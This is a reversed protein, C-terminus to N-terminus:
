GLRRTGAPTDIEAALGPEPAAEIAIRSDAIRGALARRLAAAEPHRLTLRRLRCGRDALRDTPHLGGRWAILAPFVGDFPLRGDAPVAMRWRFDGRALDHVEGTGPPSLALEEKLDECRAVWNTLRPHGSFNDLDFWRPRGPPDAAPDVAIVELYLGPGLSLLRNRTGMAPHAGGPELAVGLAAEVAAAGEDLGAASVVLHDPVLSM